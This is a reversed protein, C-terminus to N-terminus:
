QGSREFAALAELVRDRENTSCETADGGGAYLLEARAAFVEEVTARAAATLTRAALVEALEISAPPRNTALAM